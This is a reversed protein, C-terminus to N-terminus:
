KLKSIKSTINQHKANGVDTLKDVIIKLSLFASNILHISGMFTKSIPNTLNSICYHNEAKWYWNQAQSLRARSGVARTNKQAMKQSHFPKIKRRGALSHKEYRDLAEVISKQVQSKGMDHLIHDLNEFSEAM